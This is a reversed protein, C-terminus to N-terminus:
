SQMEALCHIGDDILVHKRDGIYWGSEWGRRGRLLCKM